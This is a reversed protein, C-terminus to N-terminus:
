NDMVRGRSDLLRFSKIADLLITKCCTYDLAIYFLPSTEFQEDISFGLVIHVIKVGTGLDTIDAYTSKIM